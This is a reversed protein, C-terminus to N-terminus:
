NHKWTKNTNIMTITARNVGFYGAIKSHSIGDSLMRRIATVSRENLKAGAVDSGKVKLGTVTAHEHNYENTCRELNSVINNHKNGDKHNIFDRGPEMPIFAEAVLSHINRNYMKKILYLQHFKYGTRKNYQVKLLREQTTRFHQQKTVAHTYRIKRAKTRVRGFSSVEYDPFSPITRFEEM